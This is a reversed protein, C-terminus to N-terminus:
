GGVIFFNEDEVVRSREEDTLLRETIKEGPKAGIEETEIEPFLNEALCKISIEPMKPVFVEGGEMQTTATLTLRAAKNITIFYRKMRNDTIPISTAGDAIMKRWKPVVSGRSGIFNGPRFIAFKTREGSLSGANLFLRDAALKTAGYHNAPDVAKDSSVALVREVGCWTAADVVNQAGTINTKIAEDPNYDCIDVHKMAATHIVIDVGRFARYLRDRDRVDGIFYRIPDGGLNQRMQWQKYEDRSYVIIKHPKEPDQLRLIRTVIAQGLSGTGGTILITKEHLTL